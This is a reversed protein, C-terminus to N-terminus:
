EMGDSAGGCRELTAKFLTPSCRFSTNSRMEIAINAVSERASTQRENLCGTFRSLRQTPTRANVAASIYAKPLNVMMGATGDPPVATL